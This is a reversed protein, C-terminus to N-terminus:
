LKFGQTFFFKVLTRQRKRRRAPATPTDEIGGFSYCLSFPFSCILWYDAAPPEEKKKHKDSQDIRKPEVRKRHLPPAHAAPLAPRNKNLVVLCCAIAATTTRQQHAGVEERQGNSTASKSKQGEQKHATPGQVCMCVDHKKKSKEVLSSRSLRAHSPLHDITQRTESRGHHARPNFAFLLHLNTVSPRSYFFSHGRRGSM